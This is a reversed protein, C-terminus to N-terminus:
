PSTLSLQLIEKTSTTIKFRDDIRMGVVWIIRQNAEIVWVNEKQNKPLKQDIFFRSLKKKKPLGLPYFYDGQKWKRLLLPFGIHKADLQACTSAKNLSFKEKSIFSLEINGGGFSIQPHHSEIAITDARQQKSAVILWARHKIIQYQANEIFKGSDSNALKLVEDVQKEGFGYDKIIEYILSTHAYLLLKKVPIRVENFHILCFEKKLKDIATDHLARIKKFRQINELLNNEVQPYVKKIAPLLENRFFNRTYKSSDNSSDKVWLLNNDRAFNEIDTRRFDLLPRLLFSEKSDFAPMGSLGKLGTGRFFNMLLTEINDDAHHGTLTFAFGKEQRLQAFWQYRLNRAAEQISLKNKEAYVNTDFKQVFLEVEYEEALRQVFKEDRESEEGRLNFNCHAMSFPISAQKCLHCLVVSDIGGSVAMLYTNRTQLLKNGKFFEIFKNLM